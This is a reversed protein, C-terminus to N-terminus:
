KGISELIELRFIDSAKTNGKIYGLKTLDDVVGQIV